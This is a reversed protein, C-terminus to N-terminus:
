KFNDFFDPVLDYVVKPKLGLQYKEFLSVLREGDILEIPPVGDRVAEKKAESTFRGTTIIIGKDARGQMTGRFDRVHHPVVSDKYRKCQFIITFGVVENVKIVGTGDIGQDGSGGTIQVDHIGVESLLRKCIKEFGAPSLNKLISLLAEGHAEDAVIEEEAEEVPVSEQKKPEEVFSGQVKKFLAYVSEETIETEYGKETLKWVGRQSSDMLDAKVLYMRAWQIQNRVRSAGSSITEEVVSDPIKMYSIVQDIVDATAGSGGINRLVEVLPRVYNLFHPGKM